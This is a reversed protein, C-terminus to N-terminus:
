LTPRSSSTAAFSTSATTPRRLKTTPTSPASLCSTTPTTATPSTTGRRLHPMGIKELLCSLHIVTPWRLSWLSSPDSVSLRSESSFCGPSSLISPCTPSIGGLETMDPENKYKGSVDREGTLAGLIELFQMSQDISESTPPEPAMELFKQVSINEPAFMKAHLCVEHIASRKMEPVQCLLLNDHEEKSYLRFCYGKRCRGARGSRQEANSKAIWTVQLQSYRSNHDYTKEKVKGCDVVFVVDDITLSAEAINTSLIVKRKNGYIKEFVRQQDASNMQSHLTFVEARTRCSDLERLVKERVTLIDEYGPLFVLISGDVESDMCYRIVHVTLDPDISDAWQQGGSGIYNDILTHEDLQINRFTPTFQPTFAPPRNSLQTVGKRQPEQIFSEQQVYFTPHQEGIHFVEPGFGNTWTNSSSPVDAYSTADWGNGYYGNQQAAYGNENSYIASASASPHLSTTAMNSLNPETQVNTLNNNENFHGVPPFGRKNGFGGPFIDSFMGGFGSDPPTYDTLALVEALFFREVEFLRAPIDVHGVVNDGFYNLFMNRNGEMTASMLIVKLDPRRKLAQKLAILLYDTNQEREHIEDLIIHSVDSANENVTLMRLLVGSTCYTLVTDKSVKQELRIHYGVTDGIRENREKSVRESVAIAPLRRPQTVIIRIRKQKEAADELLFQPVQTTKGCGTGGTILTVRHDEIKDLIEKRREHTPLLERFCKMEATTNPHKPIPMAEDAYTGGSNTRRHFRRHHERHQRLEHFTVPNRELFGEVIGEQVHDLTIADTECLSATHCVQAPPRTITMIRNPEKGTSRSQLGCKQAAAHVVRREERTMPELKLEPESSSAFVELRAKIIREFSKSVFSRDSTGGYGYFNGRGRRHM